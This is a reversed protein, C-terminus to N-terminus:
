SLHRLKGLGFVFICLHEARRVGAYALNFMKHFHLLLHSVVPAPRQFYRIWVCLSHWTETSPWIFFPVLLSTAHARKACDARCHPLARELEWTAERACKAADPFVWRTLKWFVVWTASDCTEALRNLGHAGLRTQHDVRRLTAFHARTGLATTHLCDPAVTANAM